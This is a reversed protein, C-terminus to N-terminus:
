RAADCMARIEEVVPHRGGRARERFGDRVRPVFAFTQGLETPARMEIVVRWPMVAWSQRVQKIEAVPIRLERWYNSVLLDAGARRVRKLGAAFWLFVPAVVLSALVFTLKLSELDPDPPKGPTVFFVSQAVAVIGAVWIVPFVFKWFFTLASSLRRTM